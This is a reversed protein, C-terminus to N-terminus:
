RTHRLPRRRQLFRSLQDAHYTRMIFEVQVALAPIRALRIFDNPKMLWLRLAQDAVLDRQEGTFHPWYKLGILLRWQMFGPIYSGTEISRALAGGVEDLRGQEGRAYALRAWNLPHQKNYSLARELAQSAAEFSGEGRRAAALVELALQTSTETGPFLTHATQASMSPLASLTYPVSVSLLFLGVVFALWYSPARLAFFNSMVQYVGIIM